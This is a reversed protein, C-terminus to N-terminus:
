VASILCFEIPLDLKILSFFSTKCSESLSWQFFRSRSQITSKSIGKSFAPFGPEHILKAILSRLGLLSLLTPM